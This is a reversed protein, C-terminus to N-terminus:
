PFWQEEQRAPIAEYSNLDVKINLSKIQLVITELYKDIAVNDFCKM